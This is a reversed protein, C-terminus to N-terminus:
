PMTYFLDMSCPQLLKPNISSNYSPIVLSNLVVETTALTYHKWPVSSYTELVSIPVNTFAWDNMLTDNQSRNENLYVYDLNWHDLSGTLSGYSKFRFKFGDQFYISNDLLVHEYYWSDSEFGGTSWISVWQDNTPIYFELALSDDSEPIDGNGGPQFFFSFYLSDSLSKQSLFLPKSTLYDAWDTAGTNWDYPEGSGDLGDFTVTGLTWPNPSFNDNLFVDSDLWIKNLDDSTPDVFFLIMSDQALDPLANSFSIDPNALTWLSDIHTINPWVILTDFTIPYFSFNKVILTDTAWPYSQESITDVGNINISDYVMKYTPSTMFSANLPVMTGDLFYLKYWLSDKVYPLSTDVIYNKFKNTSFDDILPLSLTDTLYIFDNSSVSGSRQFISKELLKFNTRLPELNEQSHIFISSLLSILFFINKM